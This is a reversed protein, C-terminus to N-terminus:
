VVEVDKGRVRFWRRGRRYEAQEEDNLWVDAARRCNPAACFIRDHGAVLRHHHPHQRKATTPQGCAPCRAIAVDFPLVVPDPGLSPSQGLGM